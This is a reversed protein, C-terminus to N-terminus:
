SMIAAVSAVSFNQSHSYLPFLMGIFELEIRSAMLEVNMKVEPVVIAKESLPDFLSALCLLTCTVSALSFIQVYTNKWGKYHVHYHYPSSPDSPITLKADIIKAEYLLEGHFCLVKDDKSYQPQNSRAPM